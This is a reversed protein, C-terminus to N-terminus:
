LRRHVVRPAHWCLVRHRGSQPTPLPQRVSGGLRNLERHPLGPGCSSRNETLPGRARWPPRCFTRGAPTTRQSPARARQRFQERHLPRMRTQERHLRRPANHTSACNTAAAPPTIQPPVPPPVRVAEASRGFFLEALRGGEPGCPRSGAATAGVLCPSGSVKLTPLAQASGLFFLEALRVGEPHSLAACRLRRDLATKGSGGDSDNM